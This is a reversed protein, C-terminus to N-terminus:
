LLHLLKLADQVPEFRQRGARDSAQTPMFAILVRIEMALFFLGKFTRDCSILRTSATDLLTRVEDGWTGYQVM